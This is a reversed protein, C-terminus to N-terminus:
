PSPRQTPVAPNSGAVGQVGNPEPSIAFVSLQRAKLSKRADTGSNKAAFVADQRGSCCRFLLAGLGALSPVPRQNSIPVPQMKHQLGTRLMPAHRAPAPRWFVINPALSVVM